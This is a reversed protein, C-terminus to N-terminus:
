GFVDVIAFLFFAALAMAIAKFSDHALLKKM